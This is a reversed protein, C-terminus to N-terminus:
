CRRRTCSCLCLASMDFLAAAWMSTLIGDPNFGADAQLEMVANRTYSSYVGDFAAPGIGKCWFAGQILYVVNSKYGNILNPTVKEDFKQSTTPGFNPSLNEHPIGLEIQLGEILSYITPWGTKGDEPCKDFEPINGYTKNLWQQTALLMEDAM